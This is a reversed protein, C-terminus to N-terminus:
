LTNDLTYSWSSSSYSQYYLPANWYEFRTIMSGVSWRYGGLTVWTRSFGWIIDGGGEPRLTTGHMTAQVPQACDAFAVGDPHCKMQWCKQKSTSIYYHNNLDYTILWGSKTGLSSFGITLSTTHIFVAGVQAPTDPKTIAAVNYPEGSRRSFGPYHVYGRVSFLVLTGPVLSSVDYSDKSPENSECDSPHCAGSDSKILWGHKTPESQFYLTIHQTSELPPSKQSVQAPYTIAHTTLPQGDRREFGSYMVYFFLTLEVKTGPVVSEIERSTQTSGISCDSSCSGSSSRLFGGHLTGAVTFRTSIKHTEEEPYGPDWSPTAPTTVQQILLHDFTLTRPHGVYEVYAKLYIDVKTGPVISHITHTSLSSAIDCVGSCSGSDSNLTWGHKIGTVQFSVTITTTTYTAVTTETPTAPFVVIDTELAVSRRLDFGTYNVYAQFQISVLDGSTLGTVTASSAWDPLWCEGVCSGSDSKLIWGHQVGEVLFELHISHTTVQPSYSYQSPRDPFTVETISYERVM